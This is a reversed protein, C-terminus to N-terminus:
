REPRRVVGAASKRPHRKHAVDRIRAAVNKITIEAMWNSGTHTGDDTAGRYVQNAHYSRPSLRYISRGVGSSKDPGYIEVAEYTVGIWDRDAVSRM